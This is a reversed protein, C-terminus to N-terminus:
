PSGGDRAAQCEASYLAADTPTPPPAARVLDALARLRDTLAAAIEADLLDGARDFVANARPVPLNETALVAGVTELIRRADALAAAAGRGGPSAGIIAVPKGRLVGDGYPRSGWDIWNKVAGPISGNYEPTALVIADASGIRRRMASVASPTREGELDQSFHPLDGLRDYTSVDAGPPALSLAARLLRRNLSDRQLSGVIGLLSIANTM